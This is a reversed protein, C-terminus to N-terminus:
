QEGHWVKVTFVIPLLYEHPSPTINPTIGPIQLDKNEILISKFLSITFIIEVMIQGDIGM